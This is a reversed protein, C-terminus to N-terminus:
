YLALATADMQSSPALQNGWICSNQCFIPYHFLSALFIVRGSPFRGLLAFFHSPALVLRLVAWLALWIGTLVLRARPLRLWACVVLLLIAPWVQDVFTFSVFHFM